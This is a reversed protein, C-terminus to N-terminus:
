NGSPLEWFFLHFMTFGVEMTAERFIEVRPATVDKEARRYEMTSIYIYLIYIHICIHIYTYIYLHM